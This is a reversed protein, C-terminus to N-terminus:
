PRVEAAGHRDFWVAGGAAMAADRVFMEHPIAERLKAKYAPTFISDWDALLQTRDYVTRAPDFSVQLPYSVADAVMERNNTQAGELFRRARAEFDTDSEETIDGYWREPGLGRYVAGFDLTVPHSRGDRTLVGALGTSTSFDTGSSDPNTTFNLTFVGGGPETLRVQEGHTAALPIDTPDWQRYYHGTVIETHNRVTLNMGIRDPGIWGQMVFTSVDPEDGFLSRADVPEPRVLSLCGILCAVLLVIARPM